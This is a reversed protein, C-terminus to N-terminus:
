SRLRRIAAFIALSGSSNRILFSAFSFAALHRGKLNSLEIFSISWPSFSGLTTDYYRLRTSQDKVFILLGRSSARRIAAFIALNGSNNRLHVDSNAAL